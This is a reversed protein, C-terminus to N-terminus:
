RATRCLNELIEAYSEAIQAWEWCVDLPSSMKNNQTVIPRPKKIADVWLAATRDPANTDVPAVFCKATGHSSGVAAACGIISLDCALAEQLVRPSQADCEPMLLLDAARYLPALDADMRNRFVQVNPLFWKEPQARGHGVLWFRWAPLRKALERIVPLGSHKNFEGIFLMVPQDDRLAFATRSSKYEETTPPFFIDRNVGYPIIKAPAAFPVQRHYHRAVRDNVFVVQQANRLLPMTLYRDHLNSFKGPRTAAPSNHVTILVPKRIKKATQFALQAPLHLTDHIWVAHARKIAARLNQLSQMRWRPLPLVSQGAIESTHGGDYGAWTFHFPRHNTISRVLQGVVGGISCKPM